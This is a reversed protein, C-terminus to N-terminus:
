VSGDDPVPDSEIGCPKKAERRGMQANACIRRGRFREKQRDKEPRDVVLGVRGVDIAHPGDLRVEFRGSSNLRRAASVTAAM